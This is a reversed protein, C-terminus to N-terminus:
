HDKLKQMITWDVFSKDNRTSSGSWETSTDILADFDGCIIIRKAIDMEKSVLVYEHIRTNSGATQLSM